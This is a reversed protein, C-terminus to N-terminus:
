FAGGKKRKLKANKERIGICQKGKERQKKTIKQFREVGYPKSYL